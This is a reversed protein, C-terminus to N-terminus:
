VGSEKHDNLTWDFAPYEIKYQGEHLFEGKADDEVYYALFSLVATDAASFKGIPESTGFDLKFDKGYWKFIKSIRIKKRTLVIDVFAANNVLQRTLLFLQGEVKPGTFAEPMLRPGGRSAMSLALHIKEDHFVGILNQTRIDNLSYQKQDKSVEGFRILSIDWFSPIKQVSSVPYHEVVLKILTAHYANLWFALREERPWSQMELDTVAILSTLYDQLPKPDKAIARYNVDGKEDVQKKLFASWASHDFAVAEPLLSFFTAAVVLFILLFTKQPPM